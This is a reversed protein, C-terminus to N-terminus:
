CSYCVQIDSHRSKVLNIEKEAGLLQEGTLDQKLIKMGNRLEELSHLEFDLHSILIICSMMMSHQKMKTKLLCIFNKLTKKQKNFSKVLKKYENLIEQQQKVFIQPIELKQKMDKSEKNTKKMLEREDIMLFLSLLSKDDNRRKREIKKSDNKKIEM